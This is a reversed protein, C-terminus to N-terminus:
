ASERQVALRHGHSREGLDDPPSGGGSPESGEPVGRRFKGALASCAAAPQRVVARGAGAPGATRGNRYRVHCRGGPQPLITKHPLSRLLPGQSTDLWTSPTLIAPGRWLSLCSKEAARRGGRQTTTGKWTFCSARERRKAARERM